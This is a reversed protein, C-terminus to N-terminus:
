GTRPPRAQECQDVEGEPCDERQDQQAETRLLELLDLDDHPPTLRPTRVTFLLTMLRFPPAKAQAGGPSQAAKPADSATKVSVCLRMVSLLVPPRASSMAPMSALSLVILPLPAFPMTAYRAVPAVDVVADISVLQVPDQDVRHVWDAWAVLQVDGAVM